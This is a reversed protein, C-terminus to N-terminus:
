VETPTKYNLQSDVYIVTNTQQEGPTDSNIMRSVNVKSKRVNIKGSVISETFEQLTLGLSDLAAMPVLIEQEVGASDTEIISRPPTQTQPVMSTSPQELESPVIICTPAGATTNQCAESGPPSAEVPTNATPPQNDDKHTKMHQKQHDSRAFTDGCLGCVYPREQTHTRKHLKLAQATTFGADCYECVFPRTNAHGAIHQKLMNITKFSKDCIHCSHSNPKADRKVAHSGIHYKFSEKSDYEKYCGPHPCQFLRSNPDKELTGHETLIHTQVFSANKFVRNCVYCTREQIDDIAATPSDSVLSTMNQVNISPPIYANTEDGNNPPQIVIIQPESVTHPSINHTQNYSEEVTDVEMDEVDDEKIITSRLQGTTDDMHSIMELISSLATDCDTADVGMPDIDCLHGAPIKDLRELSMLHMKSRFHKALHGQIRFDKDCDECRFPRPNDSTPVPQQSQIVQGQRAFHSLSREHKALLGLSKFSMNCDECKYTKEFYHINKHLTLQHQQNFQKDCIDCEYKKGIMYPTSDAVKGPIPMIEFPARNESTVFFVQQQSQFITGQSTQISIKPSSPSNITPSVLKVNPKGGASSSPTIVLQPGKNASSAELTDPPDNKGSLNIPAPDAQTNPAINITVPLMINLSSPRIADSEEKDINTQLPTSHGDDLSKTEKVPAEGQIYIVSPSQTEKVPTDSKIYLINNSKTEKVPTEFQPTHKVKVPTKPGKSTFENKNNGPLFPHNFQFVPTRAGAPQKKIEKEESRILQGVIPGTNRGPKSVVPQIDMSTVTTGSIENSGDKLADQNATLLARIKQEYTTSGTSKPRPFLNPCVQVDSASALQPKTSKQVSTAMIVSSKPANHHGVKDLITASDDDGITIETVGAHQEFKDGDFQQFSKMKYEPKNSSAMQEEGEQGQEGDKTRSILEGILSKLRSGGEATDAGTPASQHRALQHRRKGGQSGQGGQSLDLLTRAMAVEDPGAAGSDDTNQSVQRLMEATSGKDFVLQVKVKEQSSPPGSYTIPRATILNSLAGDETALDSVNIYTVHDQSGKTQIIKIQKPQLNPDSTLAEDGQDLEDVDMVLEYSENGDSDEGDGDENDSGADEGAEDALQAQAYLHQQRALAMQDIQYDEVNTPIPRVGIEFCKRYHAKSKMHKTLNGKTKFSFKCHQCHYPRLDTHTRLHKKLMSPKKCRIGCEECVYKGRGRGRVYIYEETSKFGGQFIKERKPQKEKLVQRLKVRSELATAEANIHSIDKEETSVKIDIPLKKITYNDKTKGDSPKIQQLKNYYNWYSSHTLTGCTNKASLNSILSNSNYKSTSTKYLSLQMRSTLWEPDLNHPAVRWNSYMSIKRYVGQRVYMPQLKKVCCFSVHTDNKLSPHSHGLMMATAKNKTSPSQANLLKSVPQLALLDLGSLPKNTSPSHVDPTIMRPPGIPSKTNPQVYAADNMSFSRHMAARGIKRLHANFADDELKETMRTVVYLQTSDSPLDGIHNVQLLPAMTAMDPSRILSALKIPALEKNPKKCLQLSQMNPILRQLVNVHARSDYLGARTLLDNANDPVEDNEEIIVYEDDALDGVIQFEKDDTTYVSVENAVSDALNTTTEEKVSEDIKAMDMSQSRKLLLHGKLKMKLSKNSTTPTTPVIEENLVDDNFPKNVLVSHLETTPASMQREIGSKMAITTFRSKRQKKQPSAAVVISAPESERRKRSGKNTSSTDGLMKTIKEREEPSTGATITPFEEVTPVNDGGADVVHSDLGTPNCYYQQHLELHNEEKFSNNCTGCLYPGYLHEVNTTDLASPPINQAPTSTAKVPSEVYTKQVTSVVRPRSKLLLDKIVSGEPNHLSYIDEQQDGTQIEDPKPLKFHIKIEKSECDVTVAHDTQNQLPSSSTSPIVTRTYLNSLQLGPPQDTPEAQSLFHVQSKSTDQQVQQLQINGTKQLQLVQSTSPQQLEIMKVDSNQRSYRKSRPAEAMPIDVIASNRSILTSIRDRIVDPNVPTQDGSGQPLSNKTADDEGQVLQLTIKMSNDSINEVKSSIHKQSQTGNDSNYLTPNATTIENQKARDQLLKAVTPVSQPLTPNATTIEDQKAREQLLKAVTPLSQAKPPPVKMQPLDEQLVVEQVDNESDTYNQNVYSIDYFQQDTLYIRGGQISKVPEELIIQNQTLKNDMESVEVQVQEVENVKNNDILNDKSTAADENQVEVTDSVGEDSDTEQNDSVMPLVVYEGTSSIPQQSVLGAKIAHARSKCHKYLNSKTKFSFGCAKCPFPREGTHARVHKELVSPKACGRSCYPCIHKGPKQPHKRPRGVNAGKVEPQVAIINHTQSGTVINGGKEPVATVIVGDGYTLKVPHPFTSVGHPYVIKVGMNGIVPQNTENTLKVGDNPKNVNEKKNDAIKKLEADTINFLAELSLNRNDATKSSSPVAELTESERPQEIEVLTDDVTVSEEDKVFETELRLRKETPEIVNKKQPKSETKAIESAKRGRSSVQSTVTPETEDNSASIEMNTSSDDMEIIIEEQIDDQSPQPNVTKRRPM